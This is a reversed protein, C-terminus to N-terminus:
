NRRNGPCMSSCTGVIFSVDSHDGDKDDAVDKDNNRKRPVDSRRRFSDSTGGGSGTRTVDISNDSTQHSGYTKSVRFADSSSSSSSSSFGRNRRNM